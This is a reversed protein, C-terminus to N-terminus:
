IELRSMQDDTLLLKILDRSNGSLNKPLNLNGSRCKEMIIKPNSTNIPPYIPSLIAM